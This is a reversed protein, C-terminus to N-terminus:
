EKIFSLDLDAKKLTQNQSWKIDFNGFYKNTEQYGMFQVSTQSIRPQNQSKDSLTLM